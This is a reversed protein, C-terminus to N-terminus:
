RRRARHLKAALRDHLSGGRKEDRDQEALLDQTAAFLEPHALLDEVAIRSRM